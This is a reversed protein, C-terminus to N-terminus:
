GFYHVDIEENSGRDTHLRLLKQNLDMILFFWFFEKFEFRLRSTWYFPKLRSNTQETSESNTNTIGPYLDDLDIGQREMSGLDCNDLCFRQLAISALKFNSM